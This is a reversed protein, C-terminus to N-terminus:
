FTGGLVVGTTGAAVSPRVRVRAGGVQVQDPALTTKADIVLGAVM